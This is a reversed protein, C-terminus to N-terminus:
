ETPAQGSTAVLRAIINEGIMQFEREGLALTALTDRDYDRSTFLETEAYHGPTTARGDALVLRVSGDPLRTLSAIVAISGRQGDDAARGTVLAERATGSRKRM